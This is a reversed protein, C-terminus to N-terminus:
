QQSRLYSEITPEFKPPPIAWRAVTALELVLQKFQDDRSPYWLWDFHGISRALWAASGGNTEFYISFRIVRSEFYPMSFIQLNRLELPALEKLLAAHATRIMEDLTTPPM